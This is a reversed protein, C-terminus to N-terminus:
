GRVLGLLVDGKAVGSLAGNGADEWNGRGEAGKRLDDVSECIGEEFLAGSRFSGGRDGRRALVSPERMAGPPLGACRRVIARRLKPLLLM